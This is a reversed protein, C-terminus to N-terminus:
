QANKVIKTIQEQTLGMVISIRRFDRLRMQSPQERYRYLTSIPIGTEASLKQLSILSLFNKM